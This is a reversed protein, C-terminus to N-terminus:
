PQRQLFGYGAICSSQPIFFIRVVCDKISKERFFLFCVPSEDNIKLWGCPINGYQNLIAKLAHHSLELHAFITILYNKILLQYRPYQSCWRAVHRGSPRHVTSPIPLDRMLLNEPYQQLEFLLLKMMLWVSLLLEYTSPHGYGDRRRGSREKTSVVTLHNAEHHYPVSCERWGLLDHSRVWATLSYIVLQFIISGAVM